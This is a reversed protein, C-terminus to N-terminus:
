SPFKNMELYKPDQKNKPCTNNRLKIDQRICEPLVKCTKHPATNKQMIFFTLTVHQTIHKLNKLIHATM